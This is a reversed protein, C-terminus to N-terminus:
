LWWEEDDEEQKKKLLIQTKVFQQRKIKAMNKNFHARYPINYWPPIDGKHNPLNFGTLLSWAKATYKDYKCFITKDKVDQAKIITITDSCIPGIRVTKWTNM